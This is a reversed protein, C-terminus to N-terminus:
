WPQNPHRFHGRFSTHPTIDIFHGDKPNLIGSRRIQCWSQHSDQMTIFIMGLVFVYQKLPQLQNILEGMRLDTEDFLIETAEMLPNSAQAIRHNHKALLQAILGESNDTAWQQKSEENVTCINEVIDEITHCCSCFKNGHLHLHKLVPGEKTLLIQPGYWFLLAGDAPLGATIQRLAETTVFPFGDIGDLMVPGMMESTSSPFEIHPLESNCLSAALLIKNSPIYYHEFIYDIWRNLVEDAPKADPYYQHLVELM